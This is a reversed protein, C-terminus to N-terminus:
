GMMWGMMWEILWGMMWGWRGWWGGWRGWWGGWCGSWCGHLWGGWWGGWWRKWWGGWSRGWRGGWWGGWWGDDVEDDVGHLMLGLTRKDRPRMSQDLCITLRVLAIRYLSAVFWTTGHREMRVCSSGGDESWDYLKWVHLMYMYLVHRSTVNSDRTVTVDRWM